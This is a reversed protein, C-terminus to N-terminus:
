TYGLLGRVSVEGSGVIQEDGSPLRLVLYGERTISTAEAQFDENGQRIVVTRTLTVCSNRYDALFPDFRRDALIFRQYYSEFHFILRATLYNPDYALNTIQQISIAKDKLEEPFNQQNINLGIGIVLQRIGADELVSECLIGCLKRGEYIIDNPWKLGVAEPLFEALTDRVALATLLTLPMLDQPSLAPRLLISLYLGGQDDSAWTRGLRGRGMTQREALILSRDPWADDALRKAESNTSDIDQLLRLQGAYAPVLFRLFRQLRLSQLAETWEELRYGRRGSEIALGSARLSEIQKWIASRTVQLEDALRQGSLPSDAAILRALLLAQLSM